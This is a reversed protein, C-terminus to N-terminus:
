EQKLYHEVVGHGLVSVAKESSSQGQKFEIHWKQGAEEPHAPEPELDFTQSFGRHVGRPPSSGPTAPLEGAKAARERLAQEKDLTLVRNLALLRNDTFFLRPPAEDSWSPQAAHSASDEQKVYETLKEVLQDADTGDIEDGAPKDSFMASVWNATQQEAVREAEEKKTREEQDVGQSQVLAQAIEDPSYALDAGLMAERMEAPVVERAGGFSSPGNQLVAGLGGFSGYAGALVKPMPRADRTEEAKSVQEIQLLVVTMDEEVGDEVPQPPPASCEASAALAHPVLGARQVPAAALAAIAHTALLATLIYASTIVRVAAM